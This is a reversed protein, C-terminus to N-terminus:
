DPIVVMPLASEPTEDPVVGDCLGPLVRDACAPVEAAKWPESGDGPPPLLKFEPSAVDRSEELVSM